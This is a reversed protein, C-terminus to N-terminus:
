QTTEGEATLDREDYWNLPIEDPIPESPATLDVPLEAWDQNPIDRVDVNLEVADPTALVVNTEPVYAVEDGLPGDFFDPRVVIFHGLHAQELEGEGPHIIREVRGILEGDHTYVDRGVIEEYNDREAPQWHDQDMIAGGDAHTIM